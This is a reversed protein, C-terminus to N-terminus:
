KFGKKELRKCLATLLKQAEDSGDYICGVDRKHLAKVTTEEPHWQDDRLGYCSCHSGNVEFLKGNLEYIVLSSGRYSGYGYWALHIKAKKDIKCGYADEISKKSTFNELYVSM